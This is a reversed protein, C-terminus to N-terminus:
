TPYLKKASDIVKITREFDLGVVDCYWQISEYRPQNDREVFALAKERTLMGERIQNSRFTDNETFGAMTYYIYNYFPATGDGIRWTSEIDPATEWGYGNIITASIEDEDWRLYQFIDVYQKAILYYSGFAGLTDLLSVNLYAPNQLFARGYYSALRAKARLSQNHSQTGASNPVVGAFGFKFHSTELQNECLVINQCGTERSIKNAYYFYQKDGAMFLPITGLDPKRLWAIVNKQIYSRKRAIDASVLIHEVGLKGCLRMQNRRALDTVMGWDYTYAIPNMGLVTKIYHLGYCSDRGGSLTVLCDPMGDTRRLPELSAKLTEAGHVAIPQYNRCYNCVGAADFDIYPMTHPLVCRTCRRLRDVATRHHPYHDRFAPSLLYPGQGPIHGPLAATEATSLNQIQRSAPSALQGGSRPPAEERMSFSELRLGPLDLLLGTGPQIHQISTRGRFGRLSSRKDLQELIYRESAFVFCGNTNDKWLYLSGNNTALLVADLDNFLLALNAVGEIRAFAEKTAAIVSRGEERYKRILCPLIETDIEHHRELGPTEAWLRDVNTIIGNHIAVMGSSIVPQNNTNIQQAGNTVLRSHGIAVIPANKGSANGDMAERVLKKWTPSKIFVSAPLPSKAVRIAGETLIAGGSAEKGRTESLLFLDTLIREAIQASILGHRSILGLIGCM